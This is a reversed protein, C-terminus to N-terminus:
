SLHAYYRMNQVRRDYSLAQATAISGFIFKILNHHMDLDHVKGGLVALHKDRITEQQRITYTPKWNSPSSNSDRQLGFRAPNELLFIPIEVLSFSGSFFCAVVNCFLLQKAVKSKIRQEAVESATKISADTEAMRSPFCPENHVRATLFSALM